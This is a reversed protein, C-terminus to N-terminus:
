PRAAGHSASLLHRITTVSDRVDYEREILARAHHGLTRCLDPTQLLREIADALAVPDGPPVLLGTQGHRVFESIGTLQSAVTPIGSAAAELVVNPLGDRDADEAIISPVVLLSARQLFTRLAAQSLWGPLEVCAALDDREIQAALEQKCPGDGALILRFRVGRSRLLACSRLLVAYGKKPVWRGAALISAPDDARDTRPVKWEELDIGHHVLHVKHSYQGRAVQELTQAADANCVVVARARSLLHALPAPEVFVDRAHGALTFPIDTCTSVAMALLGPLNLFYGHLCDIREQRVVQAFLAVAHLNRVLRLSCAPSRAGLVCIRWLLRCVSAPHHVWQRFSALSVASLLRPRYLVQTNRLGPEMDSDAKGRALALVLVHCGQRQLELIERWAFRESPQPFTGLVYAVRLRDTPTGSSSALPANEMSQM